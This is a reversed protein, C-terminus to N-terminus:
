ILTKVTQTLRGLVDDMNRKGRYKQGNTVRLTVDSYRFFGFLSSDSYRFMRIADTLSISWVCRFIKNALWLHKNSIAGYSSQRKWIIGPQLIAWQWFRWFTEIIPRNLSIIKFLHKVLSFSRDRGHKLFFSLSWPGSRVGGISNM